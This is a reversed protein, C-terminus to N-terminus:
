QWVRVWDVFMRVPFTAPVPTGTAVGGIGLNLLLFFPHQFPWPAGPPLDAPTVTEYVSGDLLFSIQDPSWEVGYVHFGSALSTSSSLSSGVGHPAWSWPGHVAGKVVTSKSGLVEMTDIEGSGPWGKPAYADNGLMWFAARVGPAAPVKIRAEVFGYEFQFQHLTQLRASAYSRTVGDSGTYRQARATIVLHGHGDLQANTRRSTYYELEENGWGGGGIDYSWRRPNPRSGAPGNFNESFILHRGASSGTRAIHGVARQAAWTSLPLALALCVLLGGVALPRRSVGSREGRKALVASVGALVAIGIPCALWPISDPQKLPYLWYVGAGAADFLLHALVIAFVSWAVLRRRTLAFALIALLVAVLLSHADPRHGLSELVRPNLSGAAAVHDLDLAVGGVFAATGFGVRRRCRMILPFVVLLSLCGHAVGACAASLIPHHSASLFPWGHYPNM